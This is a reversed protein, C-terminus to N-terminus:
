QVILSDLIEKPSKSATARKELLNKYLKPFPKLYNFINLYYATNDSSLKAALQEALVAEISQPVPAPTSSRKKFVGFVNADKDVKECQVIEFGLSQLLAALTAPTYSYLHGPHWKHKLAMKHYAINPVEIAIIGGVKLNESLHLLDRKPHELHELVHFLTICDYTKESSFESFATNTVEIGLAQKSFEAYPINAELGSSIYGRKASLYVFEGSSSGADLIKAEPKLFPELLKLRKLANKGARYIHKPKPTLVGKYSKRYETKYFAETNKFPVPDVYILGSAKNIVNRLDKGHRDVAYVELAENTGSIPCARNAEVTKFSQM